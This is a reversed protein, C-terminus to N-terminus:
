SGSSVSRRCYYVAKLLFSVYQSYANWVACILILLMNEFSIDTYERLYIFDGKYWIMMSVFSVSQFSQFIYRFHTLNKQSWTCLCPPLLIRLWSLSALSQRITGIWVNWIPCSSFLYLSQFFLFTRFHFLLYPLTHLGQHSGHCAKQLSTSEFVVAPLIPSSPSSPVSQLWTRQAYGAQVNEM